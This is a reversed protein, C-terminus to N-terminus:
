RRPGRSNTEERPEDKIVGLKRGARRFLDNIDDGFLSQYQKATSSTGSVRDDLGRTQGTTLLEFGWETMFTVKWGGNLEYPTSYLGLKILPNVVKNSLGKRDYGLPILWEDRSITSPMGPHKPRM